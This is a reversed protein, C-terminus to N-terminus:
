EEVLGHRATYKLRGHHPDDFLVTYDDPVVVTTSGSRSFLPRSGKGKGKATLEVETDGKDQLGAAVTYVEELKSGRRRYITFQVSGNEARRFTLVDALFENRAKELCDSRSQGKPDSECAQQAAQKPASNSYDLMFAIDTQTLVESATTSPKTPEPEPEPAPEAEPVNEEAEATAPQPKPATPEAAPPAPAQEVAAPTEPRPGAGACAALLSSAMLWAAPTFRTNM